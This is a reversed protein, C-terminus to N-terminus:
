DFDVGEMFEAISETDSEEIKDKGKISVEDLSESGYVENKDDPTGTKKFDLEESLKYYHYYVDLFDFGTREKFKNLYHSMKVGKSVSYNPDFYESDEPHRGFQRFYFLFVKFDDMTYPNLEKVIEKRVEIDDRYKKILEEDKDERNKMEILANEELESVAKDILIYLPPRRYKMYSDWLSDIFETSGDITTIDINHHTSCFRIFDLWYYDNQRTQSTMSILENSRKSGLIMEPSIMLGNRKANRIEEKDAISLEDSYEEIENDNFIAELERPFRIFDKTKEYIKIRQKAVMSEPDIGEKELSKKFKELRRIDEKKRMEEKHEESTLKKVIDMDLQLMEEMSKNGFKTGNRFRKLRPDDSAVINKGNMIVDKGSEDQGVVLNGDETKKYYIDDNALEDGFLERIKREHEDM